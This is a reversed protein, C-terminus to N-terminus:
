FRYTLFLGKLSDLRQDAIRSQLGYSFRIEMHRALLYDFGMRSQLGILESRVSESSFRSQYKVQEEILVLQNEFFWRLWFSYHAQLGVGLKLHNQYISFENTDKHADPSYQLSAVGSLLDLIPYEGSASWNIFGKSDGDSQERSELEWGFRARVLPETDMPIGFAFKSELIIFFLLVLRM